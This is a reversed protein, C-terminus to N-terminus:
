KKEKTLNERSTKGDLNKDGLPNIADQVGTRQTEKSDGSLLTEEEKSMDIRKSPFGLWSAFWKDPINRLTANYNRVAKIKLTKAREIEKMYPQIKKLLDKDIAQADEGMNQKTVAMGGFGPKVAASPIAANTNLSVIKTFDEMSMNRIAGSSKLDQYATDRKNIIYKDLSLIEEEQKVFSNNYGKITGYVIGGAILVALLAGGCGIAIKQGTGLAM